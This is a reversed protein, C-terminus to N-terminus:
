AEEEPKPKRNSIKAGILAGGIVISAKTIERMIQKGSDSLVQETFKKGATKQTTKVAALDRYQQELRMRDIAAKLDADSVNALDKRPQVSSRNGVSTSDKKRVGWKMGKTGYHLLNTSEITAM